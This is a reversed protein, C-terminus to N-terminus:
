YRKAPIGLRGFAEFPIRAGDREKVGLGFEMGAMAYKAPTFPNYPMFEVGLLGRAGALRGPLAELFGPDDNVGPILPVRVVFPKGRGMLWDLNAQVPANDAGTLKRHIGPDLHKVDIYILDCRGAAGRFVDPPAYGSTQVATHLPKLRELLEFLFEPQMLPEGGSVTVGGGDEFFPANRKVREALAEASVEEGSVRVLGKPCVKVCRGLGRCAEHACPVRCRGCRECGALELAQPAPSIGEPNHCWLCRLPCGKLFVTTRIGPGDHVSFERVDFVIGRSM